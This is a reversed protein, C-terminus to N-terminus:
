RIGDKTDKTYPIHIDLIMPFHKSNLTVLTASRASVTAAILADASGSVGAESPDIDAAAGDRRVRSFLPEDSV